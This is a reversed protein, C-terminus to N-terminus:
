KELYRMGCIEWHIIQTVNIHRRNYEKLVLKSCEHMLVRCKEGCAIYLRCLLSTVVNYVYMVFMIYITRLAQDNPRYKKSM